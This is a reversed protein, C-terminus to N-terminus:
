KEAAPIKKPAKKCVTIMVRIMYNNEDSVCVENLPYEEYTDGCVEFGSGDIFALMRKYLDDTQGYGGRAYGIAYFEAPRKDYGDPNYFYYRDAWKWDGRKIREKSFVAWVPYNLDLNPYSDRMSRYFSALADYDNRGNSYDNLGGLMIPEAQLYQITIANVDANLASRITNRLTLLLKRSRVWESITEDIKEIQSMLREEINEPTRQENWDNIEALTMGLAQLIHIVNIVALQGKTYYRYKNKGRASPPLLGIRDYYHLTNRNTRAMEAFAGASFNKTGKGKM